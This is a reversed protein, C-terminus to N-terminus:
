DGVVLHPGRAPNPFYGGAGRPIDTMNYYRELNEGFITAGHSINGSYRSIEWIDPYEGFTAIGSKESCNDMGSRLSREVGFQESFDEM